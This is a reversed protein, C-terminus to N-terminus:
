EMAELFQAIVHNVEKAAEVMVMHGADPIVELHASPLTKQMDVEDQLPIFRDQLGHILLTPVYLNRYFSRGGYPWNQGELIYQLVYRPLSAMGVLDMLNPSGRRSCCTRICPCCNLFSLGLVPIAASLGLRPSLAKPGGSSILILQRVKSIRQSALCSSFACGYSHGILINCQKSYRDFVTLIDDMIHQFSYISRVAPTSSFGHGILDLAVVEFGKKCFYDLQFKWIDASGGLGHIFFLMVDNRCQSPHALSKSIVWAQKKDKESLFSCNINGYSYQRFLKKNSGLKKMELSDISNGRYRIFSGKRNLVFVPTEERSLCSNEIGSHAASYQSAEQIANAVIISALFEAFNAVNLSAFVRHKFVKKYDVSTYYLWVNEILSSAISSSVSVKNMSHERGDDSSGVVCDESNRRDYRQSSAPKKHILRLKCHHHLEVIETNAEVNELPSIRYSGRQFLLCFFNSTMKM